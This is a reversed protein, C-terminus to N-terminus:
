MLLAVCVACISVNGLTALTLARNRATRAFAVVALLLGFSGIGLSVLEVFLRAPGKDSFTIVVNLPPETVVFKAYMLGLLLLLWALIALAAVASVIKPMPGVVTTNQSM